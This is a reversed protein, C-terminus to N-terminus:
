RLPNTPPTSEGGSPATSIEYYALQRLFVDRDVPVDKESLMMNLSTEVGLESSKWPVIYLSQPAEDNGVISMGALEKPQSPDQAENQALAMAAPLLVLCLTLVWKRYM